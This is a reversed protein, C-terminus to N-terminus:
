DDDRCVTARNTKLIGVHTGAGSKYIIGPPAQRGLAVKDYNKSLYAEIRAEANTRILAREDDTLTEGLVGKLLAQQVTSDPM